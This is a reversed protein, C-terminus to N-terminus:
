AAHAVASMIETWAALFAAIDADTTTPGLSIRIAGRALDPAVGMARLVHSTGVKGSSCASGSSVAIGALDLKILLIEAAKGPVAICTTNALRMSGGGLIVASPTLQLVRRELTDRRARQQDIATLDRLAQVAAAGFGAIAAINETGARRSREQGGGVLLAPLPAGAQRVLAGIGKPGGFKHASISLFDVGLRGVDLAMRGPAQVADSHMLVGHVRAVAAVDAVPQVIGTENNALQLSLVARGLPAPVQSIIRAVADIEICGDAGIPLDVIQGTQTKAAALVSDHEVATLFITDWAGALVTANAETAGSTFVVDAPAAGVLAAVADRADEILARARRGEAHVSSANGTLALAAIMAARAPASLPATANWDLYTRGATM